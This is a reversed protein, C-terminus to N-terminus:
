MNRYNSVIQELEVFNLHFSNKDLGHKVYHHLYAGSAFTHYAKGVIADLPRLISQSVSWIAAVKEDGNFRTAHRCVMLPDM